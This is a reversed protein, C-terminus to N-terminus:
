GSIGDQATTRQRTVLLGALGICFLALTAPEPVNAPEPLNFINFQGNWREFQIGVNILTGDYLHGSLRSGDFVLDLGHLNLTHRGSMLWTSEGFQGGWINFLGGDLVTNFHLRGEIIGGRIAGDVGGSTELSGAIHGGTITLALGDPSIVDGLISGGSLDLGLIDSYILSSGIVGDTMTMSVGGVSGLVNNVYGGNIYFRGGRGSGVGQLQGIFADDSITVSGNRNVGTGTYGIRGKDRVDIQAGDGYARGLVAGDGSVGLRFNCSSTGYECGVNGAVVGGSVVRIDVQESLGSFGFSSDLIVEDVHSDIVYVGPASIMLAHAAPATVIALIAVVRRM